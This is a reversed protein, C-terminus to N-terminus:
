DLMAPELEYRFLAGYAAQRREADQGLASYLGHAQILPSAEGEANARYSSWPYDAPHMVMGARVPNLEIYRQCALLYADSRGPLLPLARGVLHWQASLHSECVARLAPRTGEDIGGAGYHQRCFGASPRPQDDVCLRSRPLRLQRRVRDALGPLRPLRGRCLFLSPPQQRATDPAAPHGAPCPRDRICM